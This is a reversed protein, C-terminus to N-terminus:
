RRRDRARNYGESVYNRVDPWDGYEERQQDLWAKSLDAEVDSFGRSEYEPNRAAVHGFHYLNRSREYPHAARESQEHVHRYYADDEDNFDGVADNVARGAWWGGLAGAAAGILAGVPGLLAGIGAGAATATASAVAPGVKGADEDDAPGHRVVLPQDKEHGREM